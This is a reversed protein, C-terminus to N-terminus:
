YSIKFRIKRPKKTGWGSINVNVKKKLYKKKTNKKKTKIFLLFLANPNLINQYHHVNIM